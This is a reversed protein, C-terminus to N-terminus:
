FLDLPQIYGLVRSAHPNHTRTNVGNNYNGEVTEFTGDPHVNVIIGIHDPRAGNESTILIEVASPSSSEKPRWINNEQAWKVFYPVYSMGSGYQTEIPIGAEEYCFSVFSACYSDGPKMTYRSDRVAANYLDVIRGEPDQNSGHPVEQLGVEAQAIEAIRQMIIDKDTAGM